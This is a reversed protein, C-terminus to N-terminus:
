KKRRLRDRRRLFFYLATLVLVEGAVSLVYTLRTDPNFFRDRGMFAM